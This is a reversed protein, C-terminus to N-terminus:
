QKVRYCSVGSIAVRKYKEDLNMTTESGGLVVYGNPDLITRIHALIQKKTAVDFYMMVNRLFVIDITPFTLWPGVLNMPKFEIRRRIDEQVQWGM